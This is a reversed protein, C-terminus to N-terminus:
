RNVTFQIAQGTELLTKLSSLITPWGQAVAACDKGASFKDHTVTLKIATTQHLDTRKPTEIEMTVRSTRAKKGVGDFTYSLKRPRISELIKGQWELEGKPSRSELTAGKKWASENTRGSWYQRILDTTTLAEWLREPTTNIYTVYV